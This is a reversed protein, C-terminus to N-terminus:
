RQCCNLTLLLVVGHAQWIAQEQAAATSLSTTLHLVFIELDVHGHGHGHGHFPHQAELCLV